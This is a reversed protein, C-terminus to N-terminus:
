HTQGKSLELLAQAAELEETSYSSQAIRTDKAAMEVLTHAAEIVVLTTGETSPPTTTTAENSAPLERTCATTKNSNM